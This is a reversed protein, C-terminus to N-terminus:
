LPCLPSLPSLSCPVAPDPTSHPHHASAPRTSLPSLLTTLLSNPLHSHSNSSHTHCPSRKAETPRDSSLPVLKLLAAATLLLLLLLPVTAAAAAAATVSCCSLPAFPLTFVIYSPLFIITGQAPSLLLTKRSVSTVDLLLRTELLRLLM